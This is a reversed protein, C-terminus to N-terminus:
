VYRMMFEPLNDTSVTLIFNIDHDTCLKELQTLISQMKEPPAIFRNIGDVYIKTIDSNAAVMGQIFGVFWKEGEPIYESINVFRIRRDVDITHMLTDTIYVHEGKATTIEDNACKIIRKTKGSGKAGHILKIM